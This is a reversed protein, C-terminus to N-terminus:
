IKVCHRPLANVDENQKPNRCKGEDPCQAIARREAGRGRHAADGRDGSYRLPLAVGQYPTPRCNLETRRCWWKLPDSHHSATPDHFAARWPGSASDAVGSIQWAGLCIRRRLGASGLSPCPCRDPRPYREAVPRPCKATLFDSIPGLAYNVPLHKGSFPVCSM